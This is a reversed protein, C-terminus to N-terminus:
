MPIMKTAADNKLAGTTFDNQMDIIIFYKSM